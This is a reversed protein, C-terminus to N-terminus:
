YRSNNEHHQTDSTCSRAIEIERWSGDDVEVLDRRVANWGRDVRPVYHCGRDGNWIGNLSSLFSISVNFADLPLGQSPCLNMAYTVIAHM